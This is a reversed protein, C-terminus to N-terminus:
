NGLRMQGETEAKDYCALFRRVFGETCGADKLNQIVGDREKNDNGLM